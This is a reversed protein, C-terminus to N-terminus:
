LLQMVSFGVCCLSDGMFGADQSSGAHNAPLALSSDGRECRDNGTKCLGPVPGQPAELKRHKRLRTLQVLNRLRPLKRLEGLRLLLSHISESTIDVCSKRKLGRGGELPFRLGASCNIGMGAEKWGELRSISRDGDWSGELGQHELVCM